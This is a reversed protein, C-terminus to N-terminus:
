VWKLHESSTRLLIRDDESTDGKGSRSLGSGDLGCRTAIGVVSNRGRGLESSSGLSVPLNIASAGTRRRPKHVTPHLLIVVSRIYAKPKLSQLQEKSNHYRWRWPRCTSPSSLWLKGGGGGHRLLGMTPWSRRMISAELDCESVGCEIPNREVLSWGTGSVYRVVCLLFFIWARSPIRICDLLRAAASWPSWQSRCLWLM